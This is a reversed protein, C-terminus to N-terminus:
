PRYAGLLSVVIEHRLSSWEHTDSWDAIISIVLRREGLDLPEPV